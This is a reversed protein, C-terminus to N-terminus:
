VRGRGGIRVRKLDRAVQLALRRATRENERESLELARPSFYVNVTQRGGGGGGGGVIDKAKDLPMILEPESEAVRIPVGAASGNPYVLAGEAAGPLGAAVTLGKTLAAGASIAALAGFSASTASGLTAIAAAVAAAGWSGMLGSAATQAAAAGAIGTATAVQQVTILSLLQGITNQIIVRVVGIIPDLVAQVLQAIPSLANAIEGVLAGFAAKVPSLTESTIQGVFADRADEGLQRFAESGSDGRGLSVFAKTLADGYAQGVLEMQQLTKAAAQDELAKGLEDYFGLAMLRAQAPTLPRVKDFMRRIGEFANTMGSSLAGSRAQITDAWDRWQQANFKLPRELALLEEHMQGLRFNLQEARLSGEGGNRNLEVLEANVGFISSKLQAAKDSTSTLGQGFVRFNVLAQNLDNFLNSFAEAIAAIARLVTAVVSDFVAALKKQFNEDIGGALNGFLSQLGEMVVSFTGTQIITKGLNERLDGLVNGLKALQASPLSGQLTAFGTGLKGIIADLRGTFTTADGVYIGFGRLSDGSGRAAQIFSQLATTADKGFALSADQATAVLATLRDGTVGAQTAMALLSRTSDDEFVTARQRAEAWAGLRKVNQEVEQGTSALAVALKLEADVSEAAAGITEGMAGTIARFTRSILEGAQNLKAWTGLTDKTKQELGGIQVGVERFAGDATQRGSISVKLDPM